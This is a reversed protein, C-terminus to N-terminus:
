RKNGKRPLLPPPLFPSPPSLSSCYISVGSCTVDGLPPSSNKGWYGACTTTMFLEYVDHIPLGGGNTTNRYNTKLDTTNLSLIPYKQLYHPSSGARLCLLTLVFVTISMLEPLITSWM